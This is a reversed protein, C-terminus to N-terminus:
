KKDDPTNPGALAAPNSGKEVTEKVVSDPRKFSGKGDDVYSILKQFIRKAVQQDASSLSKKGAKNGSEVGTWVAATYQPHIRCVM